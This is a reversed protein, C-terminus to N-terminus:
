ANEKRVDAKLHAIGLQAKVLIAAFVYRKGDGGVEECIVPRTSRTSDRLGVVKYTKTGSRFTKDIDSPALGHMSAYQVFRRREPTTANGSDDKLNKDALQMTYRVTGAESDISATRKTLKFGYKLLVNELDKALPESIKRFDNLTM